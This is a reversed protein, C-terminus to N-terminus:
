VVGSREKKPDAKNLLGISIIILLMMFMSLASGFNWNNLELFQKEILDGYLLFM